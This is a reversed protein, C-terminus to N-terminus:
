SSSSGGMLSAGQSTSPYGNGKEPHRNIVIEANFGHRKIFERYAGEYRSNTIIVFESIGLEELSKMTRYLIERGAIRVLGKPRLGMRRGLGAALIVAKM